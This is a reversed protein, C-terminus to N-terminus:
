AAPTGLATEWFSAIDARPSAKVLAFAAKAGATDGSGALAIGLHTNVADADM